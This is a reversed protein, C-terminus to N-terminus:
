ISMHMLARESKGWGYVQNLRERNINKRWWYKTHNEYGQESCIKLTKKDKSNLTENIVLIM